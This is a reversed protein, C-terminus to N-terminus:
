LFIKLLRNKCFKQVLRNFISNEPRNAIKKRNLLMYIRYQIHMIKGATLASQITEVRQEGDGLIVEDKRKYVIQSGLVGWFTRWIVNKMMM